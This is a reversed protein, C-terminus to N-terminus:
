TISNKLQVIIRDLADFDSAAMADGFSYALVSGNNMQNLNGQSTGAMLLITNSNNTTQGGLGTDQLRFLQNAYKIPYDTDPANTNLIGFGGNQLIFGNYGSNDSKRYISTNFVINGIQSNGLNTFSNTGGAFSFDNGAGFSFSDPFNAVDGTGWLPGFYSNPLAGTVGNVYAYGHKPDAFNNTAKTDIFVADPDGAFLGQTKSYSSFGVNTGIGSYLSGKFPVFLADSALTGAQSPNEEQGLFFYGQKILDWLKKGIVSSNTYKLSLFAENFAKKNGSTLNGTITGGNAAVASFYTAADPDYSPGSGGSIVNLSLFGGSGYYGQGNTIAPM